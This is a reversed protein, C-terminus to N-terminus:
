QRGHSVRKISHQRSSRRGAARRDELASQEHRVRLIWDTDQLLIGAERSRNIMGELRVEGRAETMRADDLGCIGPALQDAIGVIRAGEQISLAARTKNLIQIVEFGLSRNTLLIDPM